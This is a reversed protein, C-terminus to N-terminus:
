RGFVEAVMIQDHCYLDHVRGVMSLVVLFLSVEGDGDGDGDGGDDGLGIWRYYGVGVGFVNEVQCGHVVGGDV